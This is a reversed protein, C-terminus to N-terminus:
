ESSHLGLSDVSGGGHISDVVCTCTYVSRWPVSWKRHSLVLARCSYLVHWTPCLQIACSYKQIAPGLKGEQYLLDGQKKLRVTEESPATSAQTSQCFPVTLMRHINERTVHSQPSHINSHLKPISSPDDSDFSYRLAERFHTTDYLYIHEGSLNVLLEKGDPSFSVFTTALTNFARRAKKTRPSSIHGPAFHALCSPDASHSTDRSSRKLTLIRTDYLRVFADLAGVAM